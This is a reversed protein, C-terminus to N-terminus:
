QAIFVLAVMLAVLILIRLIKNVTLDPEVGHIRFYHIEGHVCWAAWLFTMVLLISRVLFSIKDPAVGAATQFAALAGNTPNM